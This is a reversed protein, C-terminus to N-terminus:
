DEDTMYSNQPTVDLLFSAQTTQNLNIKYFSSTMIRGDESYKLPQYDTLNNEYIKM